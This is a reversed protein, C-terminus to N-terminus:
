RLFTKAESHTLSTVGVFCDEVHTKFGTGGLRSRLGIKFARAAVSGAAVADGCSRSESNSRRFCAFSVKTSWRHYDGDPFLSYALQMNALQYEPRCGSRETKAHECVCSSASRNPRLTRFKNEPEACWLTKARAPAASEV